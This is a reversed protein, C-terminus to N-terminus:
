NDPPAYSELAKKCYNKYERESMYNGLEVDIMARQVDKVCTQYRIVRELSTLDELRGSYYGYQTFTPKYDQKNYDYNDTIVEEVKIKSATVVDMMTGLEKIDREAEERRKLLDNKKKLKSKNYLFKSTEYTTISIGIAGVIIALLGLYKKIATNM